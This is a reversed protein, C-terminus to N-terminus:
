GRGGPLSDARKIIFADDIDPVGVHVNQMGLLKRLGGMVFKRDRCLPVRGLECVARRLTYIITIKRNSVVYTDLTIIWEGARAILKDRGFFGGAGLACGVQQALQGWVEAKSAGFKQRLAEM